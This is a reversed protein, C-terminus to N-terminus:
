GKPTPSLMPLAAAVAGAGAGASAGAAAARESGLRISISALAFEAASGKVFFFLRNVDLWDLCSSAAVAGASAGAAAARERLLLPLLMGGIQRSLLM